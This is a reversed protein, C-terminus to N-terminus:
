KAIRSFDKHKEFKIVSRFKDFLSDKHSIVYVNTDEGITNLLTMVFDTGNADLSSDFIEDLMLLNTNTSSKMKAITRWTFLMALDLRQKEGESFSAYTFEDRHRSKIKESFTNDLEFSAFFDMASLYKNVLKNIVPLYQSIIRTKVGTDKLLSSVIDLYQKEESLEAKEQSLQVVEKALDKLKKKEDDVNTTDNMATDIDVQLKNIYNTLALMEANIKMMESNQLAVQQEVNLIDSLKKDTENIQTEIIGLEKEIKKIEKTQKTITEQKHKHELDQSCTPCQENDQYFRVTKGHQRLRENLREKELVYNSRSERLLKADKIVTSLTEINDEHIAAKSQLLELSTRSDIIIQKIDDIKKKTDNELTTIYEQQLRTKNKSLTIESEKETIKQKIDNHKDKLVTNMTSFIKIDLLDEILDRRHQSSLQMFPTFSASGLIVIQTFSRYNFKLINEELYKQYDRAAADQNVLEDNIFIDFISPKIGRRIKYRKSGSTFEIEVLTNKQNISNVLQPKNINRFPKNFLGFCIADLVTSKGAGNEGIILTSPSKDLKIETFQSGTSLFNCWRITHFKLM